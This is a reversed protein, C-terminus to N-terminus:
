IRDHEVVSDSHQWKIVTSTRGTRVWLTQDQLSCSEAFSFPKLLTLRKISVRIGTALSQLLATVIAEPANALLIRRFPVPHTSHPLLLLSQETRPLLFKILQGDVTDSWSIKKWKTLPLVNVWTIVLLGHGDREPSVGSQYEVLYRRWVDSQHRWRAFHVATVDPVASSHSHSATHGDQMISTGFKYKTSIWPFDGM